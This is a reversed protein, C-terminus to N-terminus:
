SIIAPFEDPIRVKLFKTVASQDSMLVDIPLRGTQM